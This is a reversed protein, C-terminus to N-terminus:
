PLIIVMYVISARPYAITYIPWIDYCLDNRSNTSFSTLRVTEDKRYILILSESFEHQIIINKM